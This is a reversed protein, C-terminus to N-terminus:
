VFKVNTNLPHLWNKFNELTANVARRRQMQQQKDQKADTVVMYILNHLMNIVDSLVRTVPTPHHQLPDVLLANSAHLLPNITKNKTRDTSVNPVNPLLRLLHKELHAFHVPHIPKPTKHNTNEMPAHPVFSPIPSPAPTAVVNAQDKTAPTAAQTAHPNTRSLHQVTEPPATPPHHTPTQVHISSVPPHLRPVLSLLKGMPVILVNIMLPLAKKTPGDELVVNQVRHKTPLLTIALTAIQYLVHVLHNLVSSVQISLVNQQGVSVTLM